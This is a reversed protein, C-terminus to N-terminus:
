QTGEEGVALLTVKSDGYLRQDRIQLVSPVVLTEKRHQKVIVLGDPAVLSNQAIVQLSHDVLHKPYPPDVFVLDYPGLTALQRALRLFDGVELRSRDGFDWEELVEALRAATPRHLEVFVVEAAGRSLCELGLMGTGAYGDLIRAGAIRDRLINFMAERVRELAPRLHKSAPTRLRRGRHTGGTVRM